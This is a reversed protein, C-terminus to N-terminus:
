IRMKFDDKDINETEDIQTATSNPPNNMQIITQNIRLAQDTKLM